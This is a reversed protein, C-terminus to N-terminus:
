LNDQLHFYFHANVKMEKSAAVESSVSDVEVQTNKGPNLEGIADAPPFTQDSNEPPNEM